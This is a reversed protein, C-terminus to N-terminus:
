VVNDLAITFKSLLTDLSILSKDLKVNLVNLISIASKLLSDNTSILVVFDNVETSIVSKDAYVELLNLLSIM